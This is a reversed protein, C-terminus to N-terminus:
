ERSSCGARNSDRASYVPLLEAPTCSLADSGLAQAEIANRLGVMEIFGAASPADLNPPIVLEVIDCTTALM